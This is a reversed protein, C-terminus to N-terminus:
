QKLSARKLTEEKGLIEMIEFTSPSTTSGTLLIRMPQAINVLKAGKSIAFEKAQAMLEHETFSTESDKLHTIYDQILAHDYSYQNAEATWEYPQDLYITLGHNLEALTKARVKLSNMGKLIRTREITSLTLSYVSCLEALLEQNDKQKIYHANLFLLKDLDFRSPSKGLDDIDFWAIAQERSIIEDDGHSWGLRLLYNFMAESLLGDKKFSQIGVSGERKSLKGGQPGHILPTHYFHPVEWGMATYIQHQRFANTLHDDGRIIHTIAMDHDDVVVSLMYTPSGDQRLLVMDDLVTGKVTIEGQVGDHITISANDYSLLRVVYPQSLDGSDRCKGTYRGEKARMEELEEKSCYCKYAKKTRLLEHAVEQHRAIRKSQIIPEEDYDIGLWELAEFIAQTNEDTSRALDTDEIRLFFKGRVHRAYLWNFLATRASGIHLEGTPSPAFRVRIM